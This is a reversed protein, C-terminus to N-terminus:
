RVTTISQYHYTTAVKGREPRGTPMCSASGVTAPRGTINGATSSSNQQDQEIWPWKQPFSPWHNPILHLLTSRAVNGLM